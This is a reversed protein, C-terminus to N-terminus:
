LSFWSDGAYSDGKVTVERSHGVLVYSMIRM